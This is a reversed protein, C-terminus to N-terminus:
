LNLKLFFEKHSRLVEKLLHIRCSMSQFTMEEPHNRFFKVLRQRFIKRLTLYRTEGKQMVSGVVADVLLNVQLYPKMCCTKEDCLLIRNIIIAEPM